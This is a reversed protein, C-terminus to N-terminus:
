LDGIMFESWSCPRLAEPNLRMRCCGVGRFGVSGDEAEEELAGEKPGSDLDIVSLRGGDYAEGRFPEPAVDGPGREGDCIYVSSRV